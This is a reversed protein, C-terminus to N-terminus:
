GNAWIGGRNGGNAWIGGRNGGNAWIGGRNGGNAWIGGKNGGNAWIGGAQAPVSVSIVLALATLTAILITGFRITSRNM